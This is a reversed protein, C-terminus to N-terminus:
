ENKIKNIKDKLYNIIKEADSVLITNKISKIESRKSIVYRDYVRKINLNNIIDLLGRKSWKKEKLLCEIIYLARVRLILSYASADGVKDENLKKAINISKESMKIMKETEKLFTIIGKKNIKYDKYEEILDSNVLPLAEYIMPYIHLPNNALEKELNSKSMLNLSYNNEELSANVNNTIVLIDIDSNEDYDDRAYSGVLYVGIVDLIYKHKILIKMVDEMINELTPELLKVEVMRNEWEKPLLVGTSNGVQITTKIIREM